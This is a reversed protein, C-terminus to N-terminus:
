LVFNIKGNSVLFIRVRIPVSSTSTVACGRQALGFYNHDSCSILLLQLNACLFRFKKRVHENM